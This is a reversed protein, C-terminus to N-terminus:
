GLETRGVKTLSHAPKPLGPVRWNACNRILNHAQSSLIGLASRAAMTPISPKPSGAGQAKLWGLPYRTTEWGPSWTIVLTEDYEVAVAKPYRQGRSASCEIIKEGTVPHCSEPDNDRLWHHPFVSQADDQWTIVLADSERDIKKIPCLPLEM